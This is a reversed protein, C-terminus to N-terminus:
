FCEIDAPSPATNPVVSLAPLVAIPPASPLKPHPINSTEKFLFPQKNYYDLQNFDLRELDSSYRSSFLFMKKKIKYAETKM